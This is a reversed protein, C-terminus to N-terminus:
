QRSERHVLLRQVNVSYELFHLVPVSEGGVDQSAHDFIQFDFKDDVHISPPTLAGMKTSEVSQDEFVQLQAFVDTIETKNVKVPSNRCRDLCDFGEQQM